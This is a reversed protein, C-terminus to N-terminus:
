VPEYIGVPVTIPSLTNRPGFSDRVFSLVGKLFSYLQSGIVISFSTETPDLAVIIGPNVSPSPANMAPPATTVM